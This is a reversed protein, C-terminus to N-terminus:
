YYLVTISASKNRRNGGSILGFFMRLFMTLLMLQQEYNLYISIDFTESSQPRGLRRTTHTSMLLKCSRFVSCATCYTSFNGSAVLKSRDGHVRAKLSVQVFKIQLTLAFKPMRLLWLIYISQDFSLPILKVSKETRKFVDKVLFTYPM